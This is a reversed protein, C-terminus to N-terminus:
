SIPRRKRVRRWGHRVVDRAFALREYALHLLPHRYYFNRRVFRGEGVRYEVTEVRTLAFGNRRFCWAARPAHLRTCVLVFGGGAALVGRLLRANDWTDVYRPRAAIPPLDVGPCRLRARAGNERLYRWAALEEPMEGGFTNAPALIIEDAAAALRAAHDLVQRYVSSPRGIPRGQADAELSEPVVIFRHFDTSAPM